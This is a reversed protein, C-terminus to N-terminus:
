RQCKANQLADNAGSASEKAMDAREVLHWSVPLITHFANNWIMCYYNKKQQYQSTPPPLSLWNPINPKLHFLERNM